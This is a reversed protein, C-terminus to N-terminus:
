EFALIKDNTFRLFGARKSSLQWDADRKERSCFEEPIELEIPSSYKTFRVLHRKSNYRKKVELLYDSM